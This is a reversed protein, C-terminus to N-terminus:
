AVEQKLVDAARELAQIADWSWMSTYGAVQKELVKLRGSRTSEPHYICLPGCWTEVATFETHEQCRCLHCCLRSSQESPPTKRGLGSSTVNGCHCTIDYVPILAKVKM